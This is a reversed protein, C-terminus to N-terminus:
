HSMLVPLQAHKLVYRTTGGLVIERWRSHGYAGMVLMDADKAAAAVLLAEGTGAPSAPNIAEIEVALDHAGLYEVLLPMEDLLQREETEPMVTVVTITDAQHLFPLADYIARAAERSANWGILIRRFGTSSVLDGPLLLVPRGSGLVVQDLVGAATLYEGDGGGMVMLDNMHANACIRRAVDGENVLWTM